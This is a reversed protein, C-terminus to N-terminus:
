PTVTVRRTREPGDTPGHSEIEAEVEFTGARTFTYTVSNGTPRSDDPMKWKIWSGPPLAGNLIVTFTVTQGVRPAAPTWSFDVATAVPGGPNTGGGTGVSVNKWVHPEARDGPYDVELEVEHVGANAFTFTVVSGFKRVDGPFKWKWVGGTVDGSATFTVLQGPAPNAPSFTFDIAGVPATGGAGTIHVDERDRVLAGGALTIQVAVDYEGAAAFAHSVTTGTATAGDGFSWSAAIVNATNGLSFTIPTGAAATKASVRIELDNQRENEQQAERMVTDGTRNDINSAIATVSVGNAATVEVAGARVEGGQTMPVQIARGAEARFATSEVANGSDDFLRVTGTAAAAGDNSVAVNLRYDADRRVGEIRVAQARVVPEQPLVASGYTSGDELTNFVRVAGALRTTSQVELSGQGAPAGVFTNIDDTAVTGRAAVPVTNTYVLGTGSDRYIFTVSGATDENSSVALSTSWFTALSGATKGVVPFFLNAAGGHVSQASTPDGSRNDVVSGAVYGPANGIWTLLFRRDDATTGVDDRISFQRTSHAPVSVLRSAAVTGDERRLEYFYAAPTAGPNAFAVNTRYRASSVLGPMSGSASLAGPDFSDYTSGYTGGGQATTFIHASASVDAASRIELQGLWSAPNAGAFRAPAVADELLLSQKAGLTVTRTRAVGDDPTFHLDVAATAASHNTLSVNTVWATNNAGPLHGAVPIIRTAALASTAMLWTAALLM